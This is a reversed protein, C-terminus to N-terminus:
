IKKLSVTKEIKISHVCMICQTQVVLYIFTFQSIEFNSSSVCMSM